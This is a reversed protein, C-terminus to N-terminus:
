RGDAPEASAGAALGAAEAVIELPHRVPAGAAALWLGCGPNASAVVDPTTAAIVALKQTRIRGALEPQLASYAGGAGCCLGEDDLEVLTVYPALVTRVSEHRRQVQRLHCPDQVAVPGGTFSSSPGPLLEMRTALWEQVDFVRDAFRAAEATGVLHGYDKLAAGCGASDVLIPAEGPMSGMVRGALRRAERGLGAHIHLAGCCDGGAQPLAVGAGTAEIVAKALHHVRRQWADMVCGTFLWVDTGSAVLAPQRLPLHPLALRSALRSPVLGARQAVAGARSLALLLRHHGLVRYGARHWWPVFGTSDALAQRAGEMLRGFPVGSPCAVECARCQVCRGMFDSFPGDLPAGTQVDRMAAIRGRPSASEEGTVRYTPCFPLCLGCAVCQALEDDDVPLRGLVGGVRGAGGVGAVGTAGAM